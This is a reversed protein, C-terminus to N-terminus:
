TIMLINKVQCANILSKRKSHNQYTMAGEFILRLEDDTYIYPVFPAPKCPMDTPLPNEAIYGRSVTYLFFRNLVTYRRFWTLTINTQGEFLFDHVQRGSIFEFEDTEKISNGFQRLIQEEANFRKGLAKECAVYRAIIDETKM